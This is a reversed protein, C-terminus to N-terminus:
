GNTKFPVVVTAVAGGEINDILEFNQRDGYLERLRARTTSLGVGDKRKEESSLGIGNDRVIMRLSGNDRVATVEILADGRRKSIGHKIANEVLPQLIMNPVVADKVEESVNLKVTLRDGFRTQEI